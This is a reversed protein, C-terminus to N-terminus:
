DAARDEVPLQGTEPPERVNWAASVTAAVTQYKEKREAQVPTLAERRRALAEMERNIEEMEATVEQLALMAEGVEREAGQDAPVRILDRPDVNLLAGLAVLEDVSTPRVGSELKALTTQHMPYGADTMKRALDEQSWGRARRLTRVAEGFLERPRSM